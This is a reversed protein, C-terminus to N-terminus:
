ADRLQGPKTSVAARGAARAEAVATAVLVSGCLLLAAARNSGDLMTTDILAAKTGAALLLAAGGRRVDTRDLRRGAVLALGGAGAWLATLAVRGLGDPDLAVACLSLAYNILVVGVVTFTRHLLQGLLLGAAALVGCIVFAVGLDHPGNLLASLPAEIALLRVVGLGGLLGAGLVALDRDAAPVIAAYAVAAAALSTVFLVAEASGLPARAIVVALAHVTLAVLQAVVVFRAVGHSWPRHLAIAAVAVAAGILLAVVYGDFLEVVAADGIVIGVLSLVIALPPSFYRRALLIAAALHVAAVGLLWLGPTDGALVLREDLVTAGLAAISAANLAGVLAPMTAQQWDRGRGATVAAALIMGACGAAFTLGVVVDARDLAIVWLQPTIIVFALAAILPWGQRVAVILGGALAVTLLGLTAAGNSADVLVPSLLAGGVGLAAISQARTWAGRAVAAGAIVAAGTLGVADPVLHYLVVAAVVAAYAGASATATCIQGVIRTDRDRELRVGVGALIASGVLALVVRVEPGLWGRVVAYRLLFALGLLLVIGGAAALLRSPTLEVRPRRVPTPREPAPEQWDKSVPVAAPGSTPSRREHPSQPATGAAWSELRYVRQALVQVHQELQEVREDVTM